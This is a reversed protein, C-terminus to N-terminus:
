RGSHGVSGGGARERDAIELGPAVHQDRLEALEGVDTAAVGLAREEFPLRSIHQALEVTERGNCGRGGCRM